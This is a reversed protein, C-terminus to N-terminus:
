VPRSRMAGGELGGEVTQRIPVGSKIEAGLQRKRCLFLVSSLLSLLLVMPFFPKLLAGEVGLSIDM